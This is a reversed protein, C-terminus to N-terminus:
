KPSAAHTTEKTLPGSSDGTIFQSVVPNESLKFEEPPATEIIKGEHLMAMRTAIRFASEMEHTVIISTANTKESLSIILEDISGSTVPDLGASPEDFLILEPKLVLARALGIRKRMGGSLQSPMTDKSDPLGVLGLTEEITDNMEADTNDTLEELPLRLNDYVSLSSILAANQYVMGIKKRIRNLKHRRLKTIESGSLKISGSQPHISGVLLKLLTSKGCGSQGMVVLREGAAVSLDFHDLIIKDRLQCSVNKMEVPNPTSM